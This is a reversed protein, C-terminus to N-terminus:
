ARQYRAPAGPAPQDRVRRVRGAHGPVGQRSGRRHGRAARDRAPRRGEKLEHV